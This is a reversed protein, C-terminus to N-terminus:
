DKAQEDASKKANKNWITFALLSLIILGFVLISGINSAWAPLNLIGSIDLM